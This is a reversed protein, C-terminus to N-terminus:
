TEVQPHLIRGWVEEAKRLSDIQFVDDVAAEPISQVTTLSHTAVTKLADLDAPAVRAACAYYNLGPAGIIWQRTQLHIYIAKVLSGEHPIQLRRDPRFSFKVSLFGVINEFGCKGVLHTYATDLIDITQPEIEDITINFSAPLDMGTIDVLVLDPNSTILEVQATQLVKSRLDQVLVSLEPVYLTSLNLSSRKPLLVALYSQKGDESCKIRYNWASTALLWQYWDGHANGLAGAKVNPNQEKVLSDFESFLELFNRETNPLGEPM